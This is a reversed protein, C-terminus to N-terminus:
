KGRSINAQIQSTREELPYDKDQSKKQTCDLNPYILTHLTLDYVNLDSTSYFKAWLFYSASFLNLNPYLTIFGLTSLIYYSNTEKDTASNQAMKKTKRIYLQRVAPRRYLQLAYLHM